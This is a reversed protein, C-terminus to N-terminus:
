GVKKVSMNVLLWNARFPRMLNWYGFGKFGYELTTNIKTQISRVDEFWVEHERGEQWYHFFPSQATYDFQIQAGFQAAILVAEVNGISKAVTEGRQYPLPWDYGYNPVGLVIKEPPIETIAYDLVQRVKDIPAVAMPPGYTYGWEYTMLFVSNANEGLKRYDVGEYLLGPQDASVKPALAVSVTYGQANMVQRLNGVFAAYGERDEPLIYEFDVDVGEYGKEEVKKLINGILIQQMEMNESVAKVLANNFTGEESFPTLVLLPRVGFLNAELIMWDEERAPPILDGSMTYGYSFILLEDLYLLAERLIYRDVYPYAYGTVELEAKTTEEYTIVIQEGAVLYEQNLLFPNNRLLMRVTTNYNEAITTLNDGQAITHIVEPFLVLLAQGPVLIGQTSVQNDYALRPPSIGFSQAIKYLSDGPQVIYIEM